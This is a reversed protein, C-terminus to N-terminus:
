HKWDEEPTNQNVQRAGGRGGKGVQRGVHATKQRGTRVTQLKRDIWPVCKWKCNM